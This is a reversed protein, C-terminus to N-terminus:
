VTDLLAGLRRLSNEWGYRRVVFERNRESKLPLSDTRLAQLGIDVWESATEAVLLDLPSKIEIGEIAAKTSVISKGMAMAELVKNQIGRAIRLPAVACRAHKLFPRVDKVAGTVTIGEIRALNRVVETPRAGVICFRVFKMQRRIEPFVGHAFWTVAEVNAWYDMAGTFVMVDEDTSYPNPCDAEDSFYTTDVGNEIGLIRDKVEPALGKFLSAENESVFLSYNFSNAINRDYRALYEAERRYIWSMPWSKKAAYQRWKDSDVDVYDIIRPLSDFGAVYQAMASSFVLVAHIPRENVIRNVWSSMRADAYYPVTLPLRALLGKLSKLKARGPHLPLLCTEGCFRKVDSAYRWDNSDDVFAGLHIRYTGSLYKLLNFSRIKDGKNPPYPIRHALFLIEKM